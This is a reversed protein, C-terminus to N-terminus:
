QFLTLVLQPSMNAQALMSTGAQMLIQNKTFNSMESAMDVDRIVSESAQVNEITTSLNAAAYGLRNMYAGINGRVNSLTSIADDITSMAERAGSQTTLDISDIGLDESRSSELGIEIRSTAENSAGIQFTSSGSSAVDFELGKLDDDAYDTGLKLTIGLQDFDLTQVAGDVVGGITQENTGDTIKISNAVDDTITWTGDTPTDSSVAMSTFGADAVTISDSAIMTTTFTAAGTLTLGITDFTITDDVVSGVYTEGGTKTMSVGSALTAGMTALTYAGADIAAPSSSFSFTIPTTNDGTDTFAYTKGNVDELVKESGNTAWTESYTGFTGDILATGAYEASQAIRDIEAVLADKEEELKDYNTGVNASAAQTALEKLRTLMNSIQDTAGEAVQLLSSAESANRSAVQYSAIDARMSQSIALGAADDAARNIRYGSSLRELSKSMNADSISLQRQANMAVINHQIRLGM